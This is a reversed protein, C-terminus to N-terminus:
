MSKTARKTETRSSTESRNTSFHGFCNSPRNTRTSSSIPSEEQRSRPRVATHFSKNGANFFSRFMDDEDDRKNRAQPVPLSFKWGSVTPVENLLKSIIVM